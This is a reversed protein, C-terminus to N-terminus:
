PRAAKLMQVAEALTTAPPVEHFDSMVEHQQEKITAFFLAHGSIHVDLKTLEWHGQGVDAQDVEFTGGKNLKGLIGGGFDINEILHGSLKVLRMEKANILLMGAMGHFVKAERTPPQFNPNPRFSLNIMGNQRKAGFSYLFAKPLMGLLETAKQTDKDLKAREQQRYNQDTLFKQIEEENKKEEESSPPKGNQSILRRVWGEPTQVVEYVTSKGQVSNSDRYMWHSHDNKAAALENQVMRDVLESPSQAFALRAFLIFIAISSKSV